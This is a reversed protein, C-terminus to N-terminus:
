RGEITSPISTPLRSSLAAMTGLTAVWLLFLGLAVMFRRRAPGMSRNPREDM